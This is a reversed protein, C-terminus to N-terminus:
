ALLHLAGELAFCAAGATGLRLILPWPLGASRGGRGLGANVNADLGSTQLAGWTIMGALVVLAIGARDLWVTAQAPSWGGLGLGILAALAGLGAGQVLLTRLAQTRSQPESRPPMARM